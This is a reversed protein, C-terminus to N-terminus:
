RHAEHLAEEYASPLSLFWSFLPQMISKRKDWAIQEPESHYKGDLEVVLLKELCVFDVIYTDVIYQRQFKYGLQKYRLRGWLASEAETPNHRMKRAHEKLLLYEAREAYQYPEM